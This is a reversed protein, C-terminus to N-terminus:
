IVSIIDYGFSGFRLYRNKNKIWLILWSKINNIIENPISDLNNNNICIITKIISIYKNCKPIPQPIISLKNKESLDFWCEDKKLKIQDKKSYLSVAPYWITNEDINMFLGAKLHQYAIKTSISSIDNTKISSSSSTLPSGWSNIGGLNGWQASNSLSPKSSSISSSTGVSLTPTTEPFIIISSQPLIRQEIYKKDGGGEFLNGTHIQYVTEIQSVFLIFQFM